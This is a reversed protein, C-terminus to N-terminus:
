LCYNILRWLGVVAPTIICAWFCIFFGNILLEVLGSGWVQYKDNPDILIEDRPNPNPFRLNYKGFKYPVIVLATLIVIM